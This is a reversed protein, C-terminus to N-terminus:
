PANVKSLLGEKFLLLLTSDEEIIDVSLLMRGRM